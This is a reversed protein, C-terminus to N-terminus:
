SRDIISPMVADYFFTRMKSDTDLRPSPTILFSMLLRSTWEQLLAKTVWDRLIGEDKARQYFPGILDDGMGTITPDEFSIRNIISSSSEDGFLLTNLGRERCERIIVIVAEVFFEEAQKCGKLSTIMVAQLQELNHAMVESLLAEHNSFHRYLTARGVGARQAVDEMGTGSVGNERYCYMAADLLKERTRESRARRKDPSPTTTM